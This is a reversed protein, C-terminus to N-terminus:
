PLEYIGYLLGLGFAAGTGVILGSAVGVSAGVLAARRRRHKMEAQYGLVFDPDELLYAEPLPPPRSSYVAVMGAGAGGGLLLGLPGGCALGCCLVPAGSAACAAGGSGLLAGLPAGEAKAAAVGAEYSNGPSAPPEQALATALMMSLIM